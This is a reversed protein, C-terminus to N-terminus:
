VEVSQGTGPACRFPSPLADTTLWGKRIAMAVNWVKRRRDDLVGVPMKYFYVQWYGESIPEMGVSEGALVQGLYMRAGQWKIEGNHRVARIRALDGYEPEPLRSPYPRPSAEYVEAPTRQDLAEHPRQQNYEERFADFRRQQARPSRGPPSATEKKLTLHMREHRGNQEPHGPQIREPVIGLKLWWVSLRSLGGVAKSAFPAGNDTRIAQPLGYERFAAEFISQTPATCPGPMGQCRLLYRSFADTLTLPYCVSGDGTYFQGKFDGCWTRNPEGCGAFPQTYAPTRHRWARGVALGHRKLLQGITSPWPWKRRSDRREGYAKLKKPGWTMHKRRMDLLMEALEESVQNPHYHPASPLDALGDQGHEQYRQVWKDGTPRSIGYQRCLESKSTQDRLVERVFAIREDVAGIEKWPM